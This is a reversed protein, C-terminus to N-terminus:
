VMQIARTYTLATQPPSHRCRTHTCCPCPEAQSSATLSPTLRATHRLSLGSPMLNLRWRATVAWIDVPLCAAPTLEYLTLTRLLHSPAKCLNSWRWWHEQLAVAHLHKRTYDVTQESNNLLSFDTFTFYVFPAFNCLRQGSASRPVFM